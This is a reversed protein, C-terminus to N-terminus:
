QRKGDLQQLGLQGHTNSGWVFISGTTSLAVSHAGGAAIHQLPIGWLGKIEIPKAHGKTKVGLQGHSNSGWSFLRRDRTLALSHDDGCAIQIVDYNSLEEILRPKLDQTTQSRNHHRKKKKRIGLQGVDNRGWSYVRGDASLALFHHRGCCVSVIDVGSGAEEESTPFIMEVYNEQKRVGTPDCTYVRGNFTTMVVCEPNGCVDKIPYGELSTRKLMMIADGDDSHNSSAM